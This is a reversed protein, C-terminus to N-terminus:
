GHVLVWCRTDNWPYWLAWSLFIHLLMIQPHMQEWCIHLQICRSRPLVDSTLLYLYMITVKESISLITFNVFWEVNITTPQEVPVIGIMVRSLKEQSIFQRYLVHQSEQLVQGRAFCIHNNWPCIGTSICSLELLAILDWKDATHNCKASSLRQEKYTNRIRIILGSSWTSWVFLHMIEFVIQLFYGPIMEWARKFWCYLNDPCIKHRM